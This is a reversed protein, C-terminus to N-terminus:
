KEQNSIKFGRNNLWTYMLKLWESTAPVPSNVEDSALSLGHRGNEFIHMEFPVGAKRLAAAFMLTNECPVVIDEVTSWIFTPSTKDAVRKELSLQEMLQENCNTLNQFSGMHAFEGYSIVPYCLVVADPRCLSTKEGLFDKIVKEDSITAIMACLHGGASFGIAGVHNKDVGFEDSNERIYAMAMCGELLQYPYYVAGSLKTSYELVFADYGKSLFDLAIPEKERDSVMAYGGGGIVLMAPRLRDASFEKSREIVYCDLYGQAGVPREIGFYNYLDVNKQLM